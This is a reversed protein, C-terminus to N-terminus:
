YLYLYLEKCLMRMGPQGPNTFHYTRLVSRPSKMDVSELLALASLITFM